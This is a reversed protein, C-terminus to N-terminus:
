EVKDIVYNPRKRSADLTRWLYEGLIGIAVMQFASVFLFVLMMATWGEVAINGVFRNYLIFLAYLIAVAGLVFGSVTIIRIPAFSFAVFSDVFLKIKKKMTWRSKGAKRELRKYPITIYEYKLWILLYLSNSNKEDMALVEEKLKKDVEEQSWNINTYEYDWSKYKPKYYPNIWIGHKEYLWMVVDILIPANCLHPQKTRKVYQFINEDEWDNPLATKYLKGDHKFNQFDNIYYHSCKEDFGKEKLLKAIPFTVSTNM